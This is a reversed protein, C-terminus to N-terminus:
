ERRGDIALVVDVRELGSDITDSRDLDERAEEIEDTDVTEVDEDTAGGRAQKARCAVHRFAPSGIGGTNSSFSPDTRLGIMMLSLSSTSIMDLGGSM